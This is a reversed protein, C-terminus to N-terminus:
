KPPYLRYFLTVYKRFYQQSKQFDQFYYLCTQYAYQQLDLIRLHIGQFAAPPDIEDIEKLRKRSEELLLKYERLLQIENTTASAKMIRHFLDTDKQQWRLLIKAYEGEGYSRKQLQKDLVIQSNMSMLALKTHVSVFGIMAIIVMSIILFAQALNNKKQNM